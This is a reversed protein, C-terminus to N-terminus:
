RACRAASSAGTFGCPAADAPNNFWFGMHFTNTPALGVDPDFGFIQDVLITKLAVTSNADVDSQYWALGFGPFNPVASGDAQQNSRQVTFLDFKLGPKFGQTTLSLEDNDPTLRTGTSAPPSLEIRSWTRNM